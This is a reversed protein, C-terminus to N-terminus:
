NKAGLHVFSAGIVFELCVRKSRSNNVCAKRRRPSSSRSERLRITTSRKFRGACAWLVACNAWNESPSRTELERGAIAADFKANHQAQVFFSCANMGVIALVPFNRWTQQSFFDEILLSGGLAM